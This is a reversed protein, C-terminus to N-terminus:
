EKDRIFLFSLLTKLLGYNELRAKQLEIYDINRGVFDHIDSASADIKRVVRILLSLIKRIRFASWILLIIWLLILISALIAFIGVSLQYFNIITM